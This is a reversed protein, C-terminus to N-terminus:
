EKLRDDIQKMRVENRECGWVKANARKYSSDLSTVMQDLIQDFLLRSLVDLLTKNDEDIAGNLFDQDSLITDKSLIKAALSQCVPECAIDREETKDEPLKGRLRDIKKLVEIAEKKKSKDKLNAKALKYDDQWGYLEKTAGDVLVDLFAKRAERIAESKFKLKAITKEIIEQTRSHIYHADFYCVNEELMSTLVELTLKEALERRKKDAEAVFNNM